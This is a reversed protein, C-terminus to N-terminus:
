QCCYDVFEASSAFHAEEVAAGVVAADVPHVVACGVVDTM